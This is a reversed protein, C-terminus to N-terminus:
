RSPASRGACSSVVDGGASIGARELPRNSLRVRADLVVVRTEDERVKGQTAPVRAARLTRTAAEGTPRSRPRDPHPVDVIRRMVSDGVRLRPIANTPVWWPFEHARGTETYGSVTLLASRATGSRRQRTQPRRPRNLTAVSATVAGVPLGAVCVRRGNVTVEIALM